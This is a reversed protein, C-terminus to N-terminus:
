GSRFRRIETIDGARGVPRRFEVGLPVLAREKGKVEVMVDVARGELVDVLAQWDALEVSYAHAGAEKEPDQSSLHLKPRTGRSEWAPLSLDFIRAVYRLEALSREAIDLKPSGPQIYEGPHMSLRIGFERALKGAKELEEGHETEWDHPFEPRSAFPILSQGDQLAKRRVQM